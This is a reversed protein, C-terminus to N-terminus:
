RVFGKWGTALYDIFPPGVHQAALYDRSVPQAVSRFEPEAVARRAFDPHLIAGTGIVVGDAGRDLCWQADAAGLVKGAVTLRTRGRDLDTFHDILLRDALAPDYPMKRVDWLSLDVTDLLGSGLAWAAVERAEPLVIGHREPTLRLDVQFDPRTSHRIGSVIERLLRARDDLSGGYGDTRRNRAGDLFQCILYNHAGHVQVGDFGAREVRVAAAVFDDVVRGIEGLTLARTGTTEDDWPAVRAEGSVAPDARQGGHHLQVSSVAGAARLGDALRTLGPLMADDHVGLQGLWAKGAPTVYAAATMVLGFGGAARATLWRIEDDSLSGDPHSQKNTLPALALRNRWTPGHPLM